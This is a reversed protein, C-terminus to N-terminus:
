LSPRRYTAPASARSQPLGAAPSHRAEIVDIRPQMRVSYSKMLRTKRKRSLRALRAAVKGIASYIDPGVASGHVDRGPLALRASVAFREAGTSPNHRLVIEVALADNAFRAVAGIKNQVFECLAPSLSLHHAIIHIPIPTMANSTM